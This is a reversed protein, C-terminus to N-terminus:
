LNTIINNKLLQKSRESNKLYQQYDKYAIKQRELMHSEFVFNMGIFDTRSPLLQSIFYGISIDFWNYIEFFNQFNIKSVLRNFYIDRIKELEKYSVSYMAEPKALATEISELTSLINVIDEDLARALSVEISVRSDDYSEENSTLDHLPAFQADENIADFSNEFSRIRIKNFESREDFKPEIITFDRRNPFIIRKNPEFGNAISTEFNQSFDIIDLVGFNDSQTVPQDFSLELRLKEFSGDKNLVFNYNTKPDIVGVSRTNLIHERTEKFNLAKSWFKLESLQGTFNTIRCKDDVLSSNLGVDNIDISQSGVVIFSGSTNKLSFNSFLDDSYSLNKTENFVKSSEKFILEKGNTSNNIGARLFYSSTLFQNFEDGKSRGFSVYWNNGDFIDTGTLVLKLINENTNDDITRVFLELSGTTNLEKIPRNAVLNALLVHENSGTCHLRLISQSYENLVINKEPYKVNAELTFSSTTLLNDNNAFTQFPYGPEVRDKTLYSSNLHPTYLDFGQTNLSPVVFVNKKFDIYSRIETIKRRTEIINKNYVGGYERIRISTDPNIGLSRFVAEISHRTGKSRVIDQYNVLVRRLLESAVKKISTPTNESNQSNIFNSYYNAASLLRFVFPEGEFGFYKSYFNILQDSVGSNSDYSVTLLKSFHDIFIKYEDFSKALTFLFASIIQPSGIKGTGPIPKNTNSTAYQDGTNGMESDFGEYQSAELLMHRPILKTILSPNNTDYFSASSLLNQNLLVIEPYTPFLVPSLYINENIKNGPGLNKVRLNENFNKIKTHLGNGSYDLVIDNGPFSGSPENFRYLLVLNPEENKYVTSESYDFIQKESRAEHFIRFDDLAGVFNQKPTFTQSNDLAVSSGSGILLSATVFNFRSFEVSNSSTSALKKNKYIEIRDFGSNRNLVCAVNNFYGKEINTEAFLYGGSQFNVSTILKIENDTSLSQSLFISIGSNNDGIKQAITSCDLNINEPVYVDFEFTISKLKPDLVPLGTPNKTLEPSFNGKSDITEIFSNGDFKLYSVNKPFQDYVWKEFGTLNDLYSQMENRSGDFPFENIIRSFAMNVNAEASNFFTHNEFKSWDIPIQQTSKLPYGIPDNSFSDSIDSGTRQLLMETSSLDIKGNNGFYYNIKHDDFLSQTKGFISSPRIPM